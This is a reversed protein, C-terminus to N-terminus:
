ILILVYYIFDITEYYLIPIYIETQSNRNKAIKSLNNIIHNCHTKMNILHKYEANDKGNKALYNCLTDWKFKM